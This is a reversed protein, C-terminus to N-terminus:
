RDVSFDGGAQYYDGARGGELGLHGRARVEFAAYNM